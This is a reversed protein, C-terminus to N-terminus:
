VVLISRWSESEQFLHPEPRIANWPWVPLMMNMPVVVSFVWCKKSSILSYPKSRPPAPGQTRVAIDQTPAARQSCDHVLSCRMWRVSTLLKMSSM